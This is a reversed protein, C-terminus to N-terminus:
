KRKRFFQDVDERRCFWSLPLLASGSGWAGLPSKREASIQLCIAMSRATSKCVHFLEVADLM